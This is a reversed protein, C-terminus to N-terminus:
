LGSSVNSVPFALSQRLPSVGITVSDNILRLDPFGVVHRLVVPQVQVLFNLNLRDNKAM